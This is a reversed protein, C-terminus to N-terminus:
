DVDMDIHGKFAAGDAIHIRPAKIDGIMKGSARVEVKEFAAINGTLNGDIHVTNSIIDAEVYGGHDVTVASELNIQGKVVGTVVVPETGSIEGDITVNPGIITQAM